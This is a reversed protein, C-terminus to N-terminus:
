SGNEHMPFVYMLISFFRFLSFHGGFVPRFQGSPDFIAWFHFFLGRLVLGFEDGKVKRIADLCAGSSGHGVYVEEGGCGFVEINVSGSAAISGILVVVM